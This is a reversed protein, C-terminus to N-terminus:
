ITAHKSSIFVYFLEKHNHKTLKGKTYIPIGNFTLGVIVYLYERKGTIPNSSRLTKMIAPANLIAEFVLEHTLQDREIEIEAKETFVVQHNLVLRKIRALVDM